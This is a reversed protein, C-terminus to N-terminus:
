PRTLLYLHRTASVAASEGISFREHLAREVVDRTLEEHLAGRGRLLTQFMPDQVAIYEFVVHRCGLSALFDVLEPLPVRDTVVLHHFCALFLALDFRGPIRDLFGPRERNRWGERPSPRSLHVVLPLLPLREAISKKWLADVVQADLDFALVKAGERAAILGFHGDNCGIDLVRGPRIQELVCQVFREKRAFEEPAYPRDDAYGSWASGRAPPRPALAALERKLRTFMSRLVFQAQAEPMPKRSTTYVTSKRSAIRGLLRPLLAHRILAPNLRDMGRVRSALTEPSLGAADALFLRHIEDGYARHAILPLLFSKEFQALPSWIWRGPTRREFSAADIFVPTSGDFLVNFPSADKLEFGADLSAIALDVTLVAAAHLMSASWEYAYSPFAIRPHLMPMTPEARLPDDPALTAPDVLAILRGSEVLACGAPSAYFARVASHADPAAFRRVVLDPRVEVWGSPDRFSRWANM